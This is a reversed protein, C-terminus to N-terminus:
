EVFIFRQTSLAALTIDEWLTKSSAYSELTQLMYAKEKANPTRSYLSLFLTDISTYLLCGKRM